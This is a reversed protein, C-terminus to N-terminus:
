LLEADRTAQAAVLHLRYFNTSRDHLRVHWPVSDLEATIRLGEVSAAHAGPTLLARLVPESAGGGPSRPSHGGVWGEPSTAQGSWDYPTALLLRGNRKLVDRVTRLHNLPAQVCDLVNLSVASGFTGSPFPLATADCAWFDVNETNNFSVPFERHQYILGVSRRPYRVVGRRMVHQAVRLMSFNFDVGLVLGDSRQALEFTSRGVSCGVDIVPGQPPAGWLSLGQEIVRAVCGPKADAQSEDPDFQAYHDWGYISLHQRTSDLYSGPGCCEGLMQEVVPSLDDRSTIQAISNTVFSRADAVIIPVGDIIPYEYLCESNTCQLVGQDIGHDCEEVVM